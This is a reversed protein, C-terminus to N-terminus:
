FSFTTKLALMFWRDKDRVPNAHNDQLLSTGRLTHGEVKLIWWDRVDFRFSLAIDDQFHDPAAPYSTAGLHHMSFYSGIELLKNVRYATSFYWGETKMHSPRITRGQITWPYDFDYTYFESQFTWTKWTQEVSYRQFTLDGEATIVGPGYPPKIFFNYGNNLIQGATAGFRLGNVATNWWVQLGYMPMDKNFSAVGGIPAAPLASEVWRAVGGNRKYNIVGAYAEYNLSGASGLGFEGFVEAGDLTCLFDRQRADYMSQPLLVSTRTLDLDQLQNYIGEPRRIRGARVGIASNFTYEILAYDLFPKYEGVNGLSYSFVQAAVRTRAFPNMSANVGTEFFKFSGDTTDGLYNYKSSWLYGQSLFGHFTVPPNSAGFVAVDAARLPSLGLAAGCLALVLRPSRVLAKM